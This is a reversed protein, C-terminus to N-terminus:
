EDTIGRLVKELRSMCMLEARLWTRFGAILTIRASYLEWLEARLAECEKSDNEKSLIESITM